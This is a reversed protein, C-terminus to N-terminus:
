CGIVGAVWRKGASLQIIRLIEEVEFSGGIPDPFVKSSIGIKGILRNLGLVIPRVASWRIKM